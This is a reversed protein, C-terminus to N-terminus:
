GWVAEEKIVLAPRIEDTSGNLSGLCNRLLYERGPIPWRFGCKLVPM